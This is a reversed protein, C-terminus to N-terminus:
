KLQGQPCVKICIGCVSGRGIHQFQKKMYESCAAPDFIEDRETGCHWQGGRIAKAPCAEVCLRCGNCPSVPVANECEFDCDCLLTGLRVRAGFDRHLFLSNRGVTGLGSLCAIKKHSIRGAYNWGGSNISQSAAVPIYRYGKSQLFMGIELLTKDIFANVTRYHHFYTHTPADTIEDIVADSLRVVISVASKMSESEDELRCFGIDAVGKSLAFARLEETLNM